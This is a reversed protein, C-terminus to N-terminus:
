PLLAEMEALLDLADDELLIMKDQDGRLFAEFSVDSDLGSEDTVPPTLQVQQHTRPHKAQWGSESNTDSDEDSLAPALTPVVLGWTRKRHNKLASTKM